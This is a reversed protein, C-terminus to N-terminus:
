FSVALYLDPCHPRWDIIPTSPDAIRSGRNVIGQDVVLGAAMAATRNVTEHKRCFNYWAVFIAVMAEHHTASKGHANTMWTFRRVHMRVSLNLRESNITSIHGEDPNGFRPKKDIGTITAPSYRTESQSSAYNKIL